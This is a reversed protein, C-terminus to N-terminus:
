HRGSETQGFALLQRRPILVLSQRIRGNAAGRRLSLSAPCLVLESCACIYGSHGENRVKLKFQLCIACAAGAHNEDVDVIQGDRRLFGLALLGGSNWQIYYEAENCFRCKTQSDM